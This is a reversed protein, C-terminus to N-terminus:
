SAAEGPSAPPGGALARYLWARAYTWNRQVTRLPVGLAEATEAMSLGAFFRLKVLRAALTQGPQQHALKAAALQRLGDYVLPLLQEAAQPDGQELASLIRSVDNM